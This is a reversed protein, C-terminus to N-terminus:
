RKPITNYAKKAMDNGIIKNFGKLFNFNGSLTERIIVERCEDVGREKADLGAMMGRNIELLRDEKTIIKKAERSPLKLGCFALSNGSNQINLSMVQGKQM